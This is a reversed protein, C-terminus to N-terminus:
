SPNSGVNTIINAQMLSTMVPHVYGPFRSRFEEYAESEENIINVHYEFGPQLVPVGGLKVKEKTGVIQLTGLYTAQKANVKFIIDAQEEAKTTGVPIAMSEIRYDGEPLEIFFYGPRVTQVKWPFNKQREKDGIILQFKQSPEKQDSILLEVYSTKVVGEFITKAFILGINKIEEIKDTADSLTGSSKPVVSGHAGAGQKSADLTQHRSMACSSFLVCFVIIIFKKIM